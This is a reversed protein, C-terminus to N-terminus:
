QLIIGPLYEFVQLLFDVPATWHRAELERGSKPQSQCCTSGPPFALYLEMIWSPAHQHNGLALRSSQQSLVPDNPDQSSAAMKTSM